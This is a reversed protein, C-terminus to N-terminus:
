KFYNIWRENRYITSRYIKKDLGIFNKILFKNVTNYVSEPMQQSFTIRNITDIPVDLEFVNQEYKGEWIIRFERENEYPHRKTFPIKDLDFAATKAETIKKYEVPGFRLQPVDKFIKVLKAANFEICCGSLGNAFTKWHHITESEHTFCLAFLKEKGSKRKYELIIETDNKDDWSSPDLLVLKQRELYDLLIPLTTFRNLKKINLDIPM